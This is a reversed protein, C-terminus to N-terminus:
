PPLASARAFSEWMGSAYRVPPKAKAPVVRGGFPQGPGLARRYDIPPPPFMGKDLVIADAFPLSAQLAGGEAAVPAAAVSGAEAPRERSQEGADSADTETLVAEGERGGDVVSEPLAGSGADPGHAGESSVHSLEDRAEGGDSSPGAVAAVEDTEDEAAVGQRPASEPRPEPVVVHSTEPVPASEMESARAEVGDNAEPSREPERDV